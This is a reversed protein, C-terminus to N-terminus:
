TQGITFFTARVPVAFFTIRAPVTFVKALYLTLSVVQPTIRLGTLIKIKDASDLEGDPFPLIWPMQPM